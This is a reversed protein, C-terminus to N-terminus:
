FRCSSITSIGSPAATEMDCDSALFSPIRVPIEPPAVTHAATSVALFAGSPDTNTAMSGSVPSLYKLVGNNALIEASIFSSSNSIALDVGLQIRSGHINASLLLYIHIGDTNPSALYFIRLVRNAPAEKIQVQVIPALDIPLFEVAELMRAFDGHDTYNAAIASPIHM